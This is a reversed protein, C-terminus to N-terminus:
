KPPPPSPPPSLNLMIIILYGLLISFSPQSDYLSASILWIPKYLYFCNLFILTFMIKPLLFKFNDLASFIGGYKFIIKMVVHVYLMNM